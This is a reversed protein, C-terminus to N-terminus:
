SCYWRCLPIQESGWAQSILVPSSYINPSSSFFILTGGIKTWLSVL